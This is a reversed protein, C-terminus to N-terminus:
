FWPAEVPVWPGLPFVEFGPVAVGFGPVAVGVGPVAVGVGPVAVGFGLVAVGLVVGLVGLVCGVGPVPVVAGVDGLEGLLPMGGVGPEVVLGPFVFGGLGVGWDEKVYACKGYVFRFWARRCGERRVTKKMPVMQRSPGAMEGALM